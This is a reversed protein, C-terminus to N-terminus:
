IKDNCYDTKLKLLILKHAKISLLRKRAWNYDTCGFDYYVM